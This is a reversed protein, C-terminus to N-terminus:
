AAKQYAQNNKILSWVVRANKNALAVIAKNFGRRERLETVWRSRADKKQSARSVVSRAGHILLSRVYRDGRKSIGLLVQKGGSSCQRPVLGLWASFERGNKFENAQTSLISVMITASVVGIGEVEGIRQCVENAEYISKLQNDCAKIRKDLSCLDEYLDTFLQRAIVTLENEDDLHRALYARVNQIQQPLVIGYEALLGRIQNVLAARLKLQLSRVRHLSQMDQQEINKIPVFRMNPRTVAECIAEADNRDNKNSKVYPKVFQPSMLKVTHGFTEFCRAWYNSGGCAEMGILCSPLTAVFEALQSRNLTKRLVIKGNSDVGHLQMKNKAIDIGLTKVKM